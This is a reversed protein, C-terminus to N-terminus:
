LLGFPILKGEVVSSKGSAYTVNTNNPHKQDGHHSCFTPLTKRFAETQLQDGSLLCILLDLKDWIKHVDTKAPLQLLTKRKPIFLPCALLMKMATAYYPQTPWNPMVLIGVSKDMVMKQLVAPIVSFPPFCYLKMGAWSISFADVAHSEPEPRWSVYKSLQCNNRTAFLDIEPLFQLKSIAAQFVKQDLMWENEQRFHRSEFDAKQNSIGPIHSVSLWINRKYAWMWIQRVMANCELSRSGGQERIYAVATTNDVLVHIHIDHKDNFLSQLAFYVAQLELVNIHHDAETHKWPGGASLNLSQCNCGWGLTSADTEIVLDPQGRIIPAKSGPINSLWWQLDETAQKSLSVAADFQGKAEKLAAIKENELQRYFLKGHTVAPFSAVLNGIVTCLERITSKKSSLYNRCISVIKESKNETISVTMEVSNLIFGLFELKQTAGFVSKEPNIVFGYERLINATAIVNQNCAEITDGQLYTDDIYIVSQHGNKRLTSFLPKLVKTFLRPSMCLGMPCAKYMYLKSNWYFKLYRQHHDAVPLCYYADKLDISAMYCNPTIMRLVSYLSDMKFHHYQIFKNLGRLNCILRFKGDKKPRLFIPSVFQESEQTSEVIVGKALLKNIESDIAAMETANFQCQKITNEQVPRSMFELEIGSVITLIEPDSTIQTWQDYFHKIRGGKFVSIDKEANGITM